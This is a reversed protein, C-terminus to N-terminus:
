LKKGYNIDSDYVIDDCVDNGHVNNDNAQEYFNIILLMSMIMMVFVFLITDYSVTEASLIGSM